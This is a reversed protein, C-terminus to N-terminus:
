AKCEKDVKGFVICERSNFNIDSINLNVLEGVIIGSSILLNIIALDRLNDCNDRLIVINEDSLTEKVSKGTRIKHIKKITNKIIFDEEM